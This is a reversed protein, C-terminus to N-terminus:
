RARARYRHAGDVYLVDVAGRCSTSRTTRHCRACTAHRARAVGARRLNEVFAAHDAEGAAADPAIEQPGRDGGGHPDIAVLEM